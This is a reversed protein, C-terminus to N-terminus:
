RGRERKCKRVRFTGRVKESQVGGENDEGKETERKRM